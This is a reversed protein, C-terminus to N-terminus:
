IDGLGVGDGHQAAAPQSYPSLLPQQQRQQQRELAARAEALANALEVAQRRADLLEISMRGARETAGRLAADRAGELELKSELATLRERLQRCEADRAALTTRHSECAARHQEDGTLGSSSSAPANGLYSSGDRLPLRRGFKGTTASTDEGAPMPHRRPPPLAVHFGMDVKASWTLFAWQLGSILRRRLLHSVAQAGYARRQARSHAKESRLGHASAAQRDSAHQLKAQAQKLERERSTALKRLEEIQALLGSDASREAQLLRLKSSAQMRLTREHEAARLAEETELVSAQLEAEMQRLVDTQDMSLTNLDVLHLLESRLQVSEEELERVETGLTAHIVLASYIEGMIASADHDPEAYLGQRYQHEPSVQQQLLSMPDDVLPPPLENDALSLAFALAPTAAASRPSSPAPPRLPLRPTAM